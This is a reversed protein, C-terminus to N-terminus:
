EFISTFEFRCGDFLGKDTLKLEPIVPLAMFALTMFPAAFRCGMKHIREKLAMHRAGVEPATLPSMLGAIPLPLVDVGEDDCLGLGGKCDILANIATAISEDDKGVAIINHSDHGITSAIAGQQINFGKIFAIAPQAEPDYRNLVVLKNVEDNLKMRECRTYLSGESAVMVKVTKDATDIALIEASIHTAEFNNPLHTIHSPHIDTDVKNGKIYSAQVNLQELNDVVIFDANDGERLLGMPIGYHLVPTVSAARLVHWLPCGKKLARLVMENIYGLQLEEAYKDDTCFMLMDKHRQLLPSLNELDCAASGERILVKMGLAIREEAEEITTCEHDTSIGAEVYKRADDGRLAPAHGDIPKGAQICAEIKAWVEADKFLVGPANMMEALGRIDERQLLARVEQADLRAGATEFPTSPVCSPAMWHFYLPSKRGSQIMYDIGEVGLVNAIEHPDCVAALTGHKLAVPAYNEPLMLTSEIHIHSDVFGPMVYPLGEQPATERLAAIKGNSIEIEAPFIRENIVDVVNAKMMM